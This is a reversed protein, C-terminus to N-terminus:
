TGTGVDKEIWHLGEREAFLSLMMRNLSWAGVHHVSDRLAVLPADVTPHSLLLILSYGFLTFATFAPYRVTLRPPLLLFYTHTLTISINPLDKRSKPKVKVQATQSM